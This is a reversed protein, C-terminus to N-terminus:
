DGVVVPLEAEFAVDLGRVVRLSAAPGSLSRSFLHDTESHIVVFPIGM